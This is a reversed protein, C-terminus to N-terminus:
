LVLLPINSFMVRERALECYEESIDFGIYQRGNQMALKPTTGSGVFPDFVLDGANSWSLIHDRALSEPFPAPHDTKDDGTINGVKYSWLNTRVSYKPTIYKKDHRSNIGKYKKGTGRSQGRTSNKNDKIRNSTKPKEGKVWVFMFEFSQWYFYKSGKAGTGLQEFIMTEQRFGCERAFLAQEFSTLSEGGNKTEDSVVWVVVGGNKTTRFLERIITKWDLVFGNYERLADYPPSTVTLDFYCDPVFKLLKASDGCYINNPEIKM